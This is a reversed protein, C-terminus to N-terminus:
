PGAGAAATFIKNWDNDRGREENRDREEGRRERKKEGGETVEEGERKMRGKGEVLNRERSGERYRRAINCGHAGREKKKKEEEEQEKEEELCCESLGRGRLVSAGSGAM